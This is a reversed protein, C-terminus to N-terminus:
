RARREVLAASSGARLALELELREAAPGPKGSDQSSSPSSAAIERPPPSRRELRSACSRLRESLCQSCSAPSRGTSARACEAEQEGRGVEDGDAIEPYGVSARQPRRAASPRRRTSGGEASRAPHSPEGVARKRRIANVRFQRTRAAKPVKRNRGSAVLVESRAGPRSEWQPARAPGGPKSMVRNMKTVPPTTEESPLPM